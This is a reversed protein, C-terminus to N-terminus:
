KREHTRGTVEYNGPIKNEKLIISKSVELFVILAENDVENGVLIADSERYCDCYEIRYQIVNAYDFNQWYPKNIKKCVLAMSFVNFIIVM